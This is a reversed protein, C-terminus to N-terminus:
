ILSVLRAGADEAQLDVVVSSVAPLRKGTRILDISEVTQVEIATREGLYRKLLQVIKIMAESGYRAGPVIRLTIAGPREQAVQFQRVAHDFDKFLHQFFTGPMLRGDAGIIVSQLRGQVAGIVQLGRGCRCASGDGAEVLDGIRYRIFPLCFNNLDTIVVEGIEGPRCPKGGRLVEVVYGEGVVHHGAHAECEYAIGSFERSGYKDFVKCGFAEEIIERTQEPLQQASSVIAKPRVNLAGHEKIYQALVNFSEAYGDLLVPRTREIKRIFPGITAQSIEWAPIFTRRLLWADARERAVQTRTMGLTQHWLRVQRDGPRWGTWMMARMTAAWRFELQSRDVYCVFPEGTSGSTAIKLIERKDHNDSMVDFYLNERVDEKSLFPLALLDKVGRVDDPGIGVARMRERYFPVHRYAHRVLRRLKLDQLEQIESPSFWQSQQLEELHRFADKTMMWHTLQFTTRYARWRVGSVKSNTAESRRASSRDSADPRHESLFTETIDRPSSSFRYEALAPLLDRLAGLIVRVPFDDLFSEGARREEFLTEIETYSYGKAHAAVMIFSQWFQYRRRYSLLHTLVERPCLIFGSKCDHLRLGFLHNLIWNLGRSWYYRPQKKRGIVSRRGQVIDVNTERQARLLRLIDEPQYQLDADILCVLTGRSAELASRWAAAIGRNHDHRVPLVFPFRAALALIVEWTRDSSGDDVLAVEGAVGGRRFTADLRSVLEYLNAEENLCPVLV